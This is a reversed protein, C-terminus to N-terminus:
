HETATSGSVYIITLLTFIYAQLFAVFVHLGMFVAPFILYTMHLFVNTVTEGAFMNGYLRFTLSLPRAFHSVLEIPIMLPMLWWIPGAFHALYRIGNHRFGMYNYYLFTCIALGCPVWAYMTPSEFVPIIGILNMLLIFLFVTGFYPVFKGPHHLGCEEATDYLFSYFVEFLHQLKGPKEVSFSSRLVAVLVVLIAVVLLEMVLWGQWPKAPNEAVVNFMGLVSNAPGALHENFLETLEEM